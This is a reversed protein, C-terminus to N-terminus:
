LDLWSTGDSGQHRLTTTNFIVMGRVASAAPRLATTYARIPTGAELAAIRRQLDGILAAIDQPREYDSM